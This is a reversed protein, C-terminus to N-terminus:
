EDGFSDPVAPMETSYQRSLSIPDMLEVQQVTAAKSDSVYGAIREGPGVGRTEEWTVEKEQLEHECWARAKDEFSWATVITEGDSPRVTAVWVTVANIEDGDLDM